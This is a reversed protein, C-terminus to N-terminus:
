PVRKAVGRKDGKLRTRRFVAPTADIVNEFAEDSMAPDIQQRLREFSAMRFGHQNLYALIADKTTEVNENSQLSRTAPKARRGVSEVEEEVDQLRQMLEDWPLARPYSFDIYQTPELKPHLTCEALKVPIVPKGMGIAYAWEYTVYASDASSGSLAVLVALSEKIGDEISERWDDGARISGQDRWLRLGNAELKLALMEAFFYDRSSYSLFINKM